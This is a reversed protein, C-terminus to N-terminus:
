RTLNLALPVVDTVYGVYFRGFEGYLASAKDFRM